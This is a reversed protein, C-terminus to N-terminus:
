AYEESQPRRGQSRKQQHAGFHFGNCYRCHYVQFRASRRKGSRSAKKRAESFSAYRSKGTCSSASDRETM